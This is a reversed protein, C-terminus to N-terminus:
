GMLRHLASRIQTMLDDALIGFLELHQWCLFRVRGLMDETNYGKVTLTHLIGAMNDVFDDVYMALFFNALLSACNTGMPTDIIQQLLTDGFTVFINELLFHLFTQVTALDFVFFCGASGTGHRPANPAPMQNPKLWVAPAKQWVKIGAHSPHAAFIKGILRMTQAKMDATDINTYLRKFDYTHLM